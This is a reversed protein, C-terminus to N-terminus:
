LEINPWVSKFSKWQNKQEALQFITWGNMAKFPSEDRESGKMGSFVEELYVNKLTCVEQCKLGKM